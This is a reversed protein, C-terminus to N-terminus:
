NCDDCVRETAAGIAAREEDEYDGLRKPEFGYKELDDCSLLTLIPTEPDPLQNDPIEIAMVEGGPNCGHQTATLLAEALDKGHSIVAGLFREEGAFSMYWLKMCTIRECGTWEAV